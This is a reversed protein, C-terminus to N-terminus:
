KACKEMITKLDNLIMSLRYYVDTLDANPDNVYMEVLQKLLKEKRTIKRM